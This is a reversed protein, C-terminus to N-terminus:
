HHRAGAHGGGEGGMRLPVTLLAAGTADDRLVLDYSLPVSTMPRRATPDASFARWCDAGCFCRGAVRPSGPACPMGCVPDREPAALSVWLALRDGPALGRLVRGEQRPWRHLGLDIVPHAVEMSWDLPPEGELEVRADGRWPPLVPATLVVEYREPGAPLAVPHRATGGGKKIVGMAHASDPWRWAAAATAVLVTAALAAASKARARTM